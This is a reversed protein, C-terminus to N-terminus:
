SQEDAQKRNDVHVKLNSTQTNNRKRSSKQVRVLNGQPGQRSGRYPVGKPSKVPVLEGSALGAATSRLQVFDLSSPSIQANDLAERALLPMTDNSEGISSLRQMPSATSSCGPRYDNTVTMMLDEPDEDTVAVLGRTEYLAKEWARIDEDRVQNEVFV